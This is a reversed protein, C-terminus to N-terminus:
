SKAGKKKWHICGFDPPLRFVIFKSVTPHHCWRWKSALCWEELLFWRCTKCRNKTKM